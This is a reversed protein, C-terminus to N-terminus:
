YGQGPLQRGSEGPALEEERGGGQRKAKPLTQAPAALGPVLGVALLYAAVVGVVATLGRLFAKIATM